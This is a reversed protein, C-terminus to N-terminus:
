IQSWKHSMNTNVLYNLKFNILSITGPSIYKLSLWQCISSTSIWSFLHSLGHLLYLLSSFLDWFVSVSFSVWLAIMSISLWSFTTDQFGLSSSAQPLYHGVRHSSALSLLFFFWASYGLSPLYMRSEPWSGETFASPKWQTKDIHSSSLSIFPFLLLLSWLAFTHISSIFISYSYPIPTAKPNCLQMRNENDLLKM